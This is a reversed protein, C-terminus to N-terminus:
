TRVVSTLRNSGDYGLTVTAVTTAGLKYVVTSILSTSGVYTVVTNDYPVTVLASATKASLASLTADTAVGPISAQSAPYTFVTAM